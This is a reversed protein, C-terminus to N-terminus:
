TQEQAYGLAALRLMEEASIIDLTPGPGEDRALRLAIDVPIQPEEVILSFAVLLPDPQEALHAVLADMRAKIPRHEGPCCACGPRTAEAKALLDPIMPTPEVVFPEPERIPQEAM